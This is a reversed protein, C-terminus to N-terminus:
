QNDIPEYHLGSSSGSPHFWTTLRIIILLYITNSVDPHSRYFFYGILMKGYLVASRHLSRIHVASQRSDQLHPCCKDESVNTPIWWGTDSWCSVPRWHGGARIGWENRMCIINGWFSFHKRSLFSNQISLYQIFIYFYAQRKKVEPYHPNRNLNLAAPVTYLVYSAWVHNSHLKHHQM